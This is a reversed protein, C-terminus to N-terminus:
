ARSSAGPAKAISQGLSTKGVGPPGVFCLIPSKGEPNLKRVALFELIRRKIKELGFHDEDLVRRAEGLDIVGESRKSWPLEVLWDLYTRIMSYEGAGEPTRELRKLEKHAHKEVEEPMRAEDILKELEEIEAARDDTEGLEKQITRMQERLVHKRQQEGLTEQTQENIQRSLKLIELRGALLKAVKDMREALDFTELIEQKESVRLDVFSAIMDCLQNASSVAQLAAILEAPVQPLLQLMEVARSKLGMMRAEIESGSQDPTEIPAVRAVLFPYGDLFQLVRFRQTGQCVMHHVGDESTVYRMINGMTGVWHLNDPGPVDIDPQRQLLVGIPRESKLAEQAAAISGPRGITLPFVVGPFLVVNRSPVIIVADEPVVKSERRSAGPAGEVSALAAAEPGDALLPTQSTQESLSTM